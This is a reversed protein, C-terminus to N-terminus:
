HVPDPCHTRLFHEEPLDVARPRSDLRVRIHWEAHQKRRPKNQYRVGSCAM